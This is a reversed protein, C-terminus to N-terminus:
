NGELKKLLNKADDDGMQFAVLMKLARIIIKMESENM